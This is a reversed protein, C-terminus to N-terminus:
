SVLKKRRSSSYDVAMFLEPLIYIHLANPLGAFFCVTIGYGVLLTFILGSNERGKIARFAFVAALVLLVIGVLGTELLLSFYQNQVIEKSYLTWGYIHMAEGAGGLGVGFLMTKVDKAWIEIAADNLNVRTTTSSEVYGNFIAAEKQKADTNGEDEKVEPSQRFDILGLSLHNIAKSVGSVYTDDTKSAEAMIGQMNLTFLFALIVVPWLLMARWKKTRMIMYITMFIMAIIFAYIAGRSFTLFLTAVFIFFYLLLTKTSFLETYRKLYFWAAVIVPALLLNGMFQPEIAFGNPHPFGFMTYTCGSCMLTGDRSVGVLDLISQLFCWVCVTVSSYFFIKYFKSKTAELEFLVRLKLIAFGALCVLWLMGITLAGRLKNLSWFVSLTLFFMLLLLPWWKVLNSFLRKRILLIVSLLDFVVLYILPLSLEFNMSENSGLHIIPYYSFFLVVPFFYVLFRFAKEMWDSKKKIM